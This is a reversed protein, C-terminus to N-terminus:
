NVTLRAEMGSSRHGAIDCYLFYRGPELDLSGLDTSGDVVVLRMEGEYNEVVLTHEQVGVQSLEFEVTGAIAEYTDANYDQRDYAEVRVVNDEGATLTTTSGGGGCASLLLATTAMLSFASRLPM